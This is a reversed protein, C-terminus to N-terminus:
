FTGPRIDEIFAPRDAWYGGPSMMSPGSSTKCQPAMGTTTLSLGYTKSANHITALASCAAISACGHMAASMCSQIWYATRVKALANSPSLGTTYGICAAVEKSGLTRSGNFAPTKWGTGFCYRESWISAM